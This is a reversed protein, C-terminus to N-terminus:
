KLRLYRSIVDSAVYGHLHGVHLGHGSPYIFMDLCYFNKKEKERDKVKYLGVKEWIRQWKKEIKKFNYEKM